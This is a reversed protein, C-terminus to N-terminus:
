QNVKPKRTLGVIFITNERIIEVHYTTSRNLVAVLLVRDQVNKYEFRSKCVIQSDVEFVSSTEVLRQPDEFGLLLFVDEWCGYRSNKNEHTNKRYIDYYLVPVLPVHKVLSRQCADNYRTNLVQIFCNIRARKKRSFIIISITLRMKIVRDNDLYTYFARARTHTHKKKQRTM